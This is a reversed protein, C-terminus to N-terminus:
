RGGGSLDSLTEVAAKAGAFLERLEAKRWEGQWQKATTDGVGVADLGAARALAITRPLHFEQSVVLAQEYGAAQANRCTARTNVGLPDVSMLAPDIGRRVLYARMADTEHNSAASGDGSLLLSDVTGTRLLREAVDLRAALVPSPRGNPYAEAGLVIAVPRHPAREESVVRGASALRIWAASTALVGAGLAVAVGAAAGATRVWRRTRAHSSM